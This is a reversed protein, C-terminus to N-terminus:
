NSNVVENYSLLDIVFLVREEWYMDWSSNEGEINVGNSVCHIVEIDEGDKSYIIGAHATNFSKGRKSGFFILDGPIADKLDKQKKILESQKQASHPLEIGVSNYVYLTFGSCDFGTKPSVGAWKYPRGELKSAFSLMAKRLSDQPWEEEAKFTKENRIVVSYENLEPLTDNFEKALLYVYYKRHKKKLDNDKIVELVYLHISDTLTIFYANNISIQNKKKIAKELSKKAKGYSTADRADQLSLLSLIYLADVDKRDKSLMKGGLKEAKEFNGKTYLQHLKTAKKSQSFASFSLFVVIISLYIKM